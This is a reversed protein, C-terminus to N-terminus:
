CSHPATSSIPSKCTQDSEDSDDPCDPEGDCLWARPVCTARDHCSFEGVDCAIADPHRSLFTCLFSAAHLSPGPGCTEPSFMYVSLCLCSHPPPWVQVKQFWIFRTSQPSHTNVYAFNSYCSPSHLLSLLM